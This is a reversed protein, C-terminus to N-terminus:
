FPPEILVLISQPLGRRVVFDAHGRRRVTIKM